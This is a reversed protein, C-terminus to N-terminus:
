EDDGPEDLWVASQRRMRHVYDGADEDAQLDGWTEDPPNVALWAIFEARPLPEHTMFQRIEEDTWTAEDSVAQALLVLGRLYDLVRRQQDLDLQNVQEIIQQTLSM